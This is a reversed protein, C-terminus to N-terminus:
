YRRGSLFIHNESLPRLSHFPQPLSRSLAHGETHARGRPLGPRREHRHPARGGHQYARRRHPLAVRPVRPVRRRFRLGCFLALAVFSAAALFESRVAKETMFSVRLGNLSYLTKNFLNGNKWKRWRGCRRLRLWASIIAFARADSPYIQRRPFFLRAARRRTQINTRTESYYCLQINHLGAASEM